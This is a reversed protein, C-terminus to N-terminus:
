KECKGLKSIKKLFSIDKKAIKKGILDFFKEQENRGFFYITVDHKEAIKKIQKKNKNQKESDDVICFPM